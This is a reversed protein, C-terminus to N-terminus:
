SGLILGKGEHFDYFDHPFSVLIVHLYINCPNECDSKVHM